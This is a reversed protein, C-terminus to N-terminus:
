TVEQQPTSFAMTVQEADHFNTYGVSSSPSNTTSHYRYGIVRLPPNFSKDEKEIISFGSPPQSSDLEPKRTSVPSFSIIEVNSQLPEKVKNQHLNITM